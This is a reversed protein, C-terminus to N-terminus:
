LHDITFSDSVRWYGSGIMLRVETGCQLVKNQTIVHFIGLVFRMSNGSLINRKLIADHGAGQSWNPRQELTIEDLLRREVETGDYMNGENELSLMKEGELFIVFERRIGEGKRRDGPIWGGADPMHSLHKIRSSWRQQLMLKGQM